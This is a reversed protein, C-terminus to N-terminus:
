KAECHKNKAAAIRHQEVKPKAHNYYTIKKNSLWIIFGTVSPFKPQDRHFGIYTVPMLTTLSLTQSFKVNPTIKQSSM